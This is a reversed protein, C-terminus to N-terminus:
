RFRKFCIHQEKTFSPILVNNFVYFLHEDLHGPNLKYWNYVPQNYVKGLLARLVVNHTVIATKNKTFGNNIFNQITAISFNYVYFNTVEKM